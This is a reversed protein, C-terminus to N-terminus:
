SEIIENMHSFKFNNLMVELYKVMKLLLGGALETM